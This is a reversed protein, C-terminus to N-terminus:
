EVDELLLNMVPSIVPYALIATVQVAAMDSCYMQITANSPDDPYNNSAELTVTQYTDWNDQNFVLTAGERVIIARCGTQRTVSVMVGKYPNDSLKVQVQSSGFPPVRVISRDVVIGLPKAIFSASISHDTIINTFTYSSLPGVSVGDVLVNNINYKTNATISFGQSSGFPVRIVGSPSITGGTGATASITHTDGVFSVAITHGVIVNSFTYSTVAGVSSGDVLVDVVHYGTNSTITFTQSAGYNVPVAGAPSISGNAGASATITNTNIAFTAEITHGATVNSFTYSTVAGVSSGDVTVDAVHYHRGPTITFTQNAGYAVPVAGAPSISGNAEASATITNTDIAFSAQITHNATVNNFPYSTVAGVSSGDVLVDMVHYNAAPTITFTQNAGYNVPVAGAPSISGNAGASATITNTDIAFSAQITHNATVNNFPYSTVAGVSSGDVLVDMVHYNAAPTITFTQNAGYNVPVAGAPSISGNAGASATITNTDIAFSAQITHNATVNNFPYSTVAGVSSGDVLVDMVHYNAAPTITFTQNAGYNVPVAGAPSISGNAGASATITNTNIAFSAQITHNATVNNFPYSTVAGVSSGDVLVDMVHYNAAPTITFTQNAGYNVPVAGAPSISGNAGASATITNTDIAFSAQITHNATVNNFPYSTVAGVSSGDVLVDMVHYNAAPTITFTQNAGYNVPVAGAPSISGNAGASATITSTDIAFSAQITHNATVNNFPYSTVAGVSSGDVLVDMVHYNAAPTITFTQNAGYNVPVAGAPSISGNAGASATITNTDIAFSAQITHNATVNNFPYSTVAGVSSGDVLVDMVHYNAAPTITFTQNAGYNVPVAGAPSISGNAGASATITNTDIAFSAQITHNATVNNFPYSTVAGVSSGDVLVDMVHYNAAPTITFTQNAGYNVPVAGAPSISGNAGASATITNTNIAFSAEITHNATVNNFTYSTM